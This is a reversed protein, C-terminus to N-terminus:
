GAPHGKAETPLALTQCKRFDTADYAALTNEAQLVWILTRGVPPGSPAALRAAQAAVTAACGCLVAVLRFSPM